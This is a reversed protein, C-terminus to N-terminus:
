EKAEWEGCATTDIHPPCDACYESKGNTCVGFWDYYWKCTKCTDAAALDKECQYGGALDPCERCVELLDDTMRDVWGSCYIQPKRDVYFETSPRGRGFECPCKKVHVM